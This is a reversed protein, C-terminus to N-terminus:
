DWMEPGERLAKPPSLIEQFIIAARATAPDALNVRTHINAGAPGPLEYGESLNRDIRSATTRRRKRVLDAVAAKPKREHHSSPLDPHILMEDPSLHEIPTLEVMGQEVPQVPKPATAFMSVKPHPKPTPPPPPTATNRKQIFDRLSVTERVSPSRSFAKTGIPPNGEERRAKRALIEKAEQAKQRAQEQQRKEANKKFVASLISGAAIVVFFLIQYIGGVGDDNALMSIFYVPEIMM